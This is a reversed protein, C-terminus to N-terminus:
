FGGVKTAEELSRSLQGVLGRLMKNESCTKRLLIGLRVLAVVLACHWWSGFWGDEKQQAHSRKGAEVKRRATLGVINGAKCM